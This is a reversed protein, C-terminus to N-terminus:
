SSFPHFSTIDNGLQHLSTQSMEQNGRMYKTVTEQRKRQTDRHRRWSCSMPARPTIHFRLFRRQGLKGGMDQHKTGEWPRRVMILTSVSSGRGFPAESASLLHDQGQDWVWSGTDHWTRCAQTRLAGGLGWAAKQESPCPLVLCKGVGPLVTPRHHRDLAM